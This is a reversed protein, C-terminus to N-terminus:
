PNNLTCSMWIQLSHLEEMNRPIYNPQEQLSRVEKRVASFAMFIRPQGFFLDICRLAIASEPYLTGDVDFAVARLRSQGEM